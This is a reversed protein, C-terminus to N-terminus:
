SYLMNGEIEQAIYSNSLGEDEFVKNCIDKDIRNMTDVYSSRNKFLSIVKVNDEIAVRVESIKVVYAFSNDYAERNCMKVDDLLFNYEMLASLFDANIFDDIVKIYADRNAHLKGHAFYHAKDFKIISNVYLPLLVSISNIYTTRNGTDHIFCERLTDILLSMNNVLEYYRDVSVEIGLSEKNQINAYENKLSKFSQQDLIEQHKVLKNVSHNIAGLEKSIDDMKGSIIMFGAVSVGLDICNVFLNLYNLTQSASSIKDAKASLANIKKTMINMNTSITTINHNATEGMIDLNKIINDLLDKVGNDKVPNVKVFEKFRKKVNRICIEVFEREDMYKAIETPVEIIYEMIM